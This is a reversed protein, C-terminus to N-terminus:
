AEEGPAQTRRLYLVLSVGGSLLLLVGYLSLNMLFAGVATPPFLRATWSQAIIAAIREPPSLAMWASAITMTIAVFWKWRVTRAVAFAYSAALLVGILSVPAVLQWHARRAIALLLVIAASVATGAILPIWVADRKRYEVFGTRPYTIRKKIAESGYKLVASMALAFIMVTYPKNWLSYEPTRLQMWSLCAFSLCMFGIGLEGVGDVNYYCKPRNLLSSVQDM